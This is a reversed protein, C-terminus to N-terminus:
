STGQRHAVRRRLAVLAMLGLLLLGAANTMDPVLQTITTPTIQGNAFGGTAVYKEEGYHWRAFLRYGLGNPGPALFESIEYQALVNGNADGTFGFDAWTEPRDSPHRTADFPVAVGDTPITLPSPLGQFYRDLSPDGALFAAQLDHFLDFTATVDDIVDQLPVADARTPAALGLVVLLALVSHRM